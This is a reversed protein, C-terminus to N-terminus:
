SGLHRWLEKLRAKREDSTNTMSDILGDLMETNNLQKAPAETKTDLPILDLKFTEKNLVKAIKNRTIKQLEEHTGTIKVWLLDDREAFDYASLRNFVDLDAYSEYIVHKRLKTPVFELSGDSMLIQFGKEPDNAEGFSVTYPNGIYDWKGMKPLEITQRAHYHGSIVRFGAVDALSLASKDQIYDGMNSGLVGQHMILQKCTQIGKIFTRLAEVDHYYPILWGLKHQYVPKDIVMAYASLFNLSHGDFKENIKDHNGIIIYPPSDCLKFTEVMANVCEGRLNAKSDHLDGSVILPVRLNNAKGIAQQMAADALKLNALSYHVDSIIVAIPKIMSKM